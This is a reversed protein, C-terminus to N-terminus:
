DLLQCFTIQKTNKKQSPGSLVYKFDHALPDKGCSSLEAVAAEFCCCVIHSYTVIATNRYLKISLFMHRHAM